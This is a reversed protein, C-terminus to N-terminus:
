RAPFSLSIRDCSLALNGQGCVPCDGVCHDGKVLLNSRQWRRVTKCSDQLVYKRELDQKEFAIKRKTYIQLQSKFELIIIQPLFATQFRCYIYPSYQHTGIRLLKNSTNMRYFSCM